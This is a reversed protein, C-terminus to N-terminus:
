SCYGNNEEHNPLTQYLSTSIKTSALYLTGNGYGVKYQLKGNRTYEIERIVAM